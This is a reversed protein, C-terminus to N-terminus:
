KVQNIIKELLKEETQKFEIINKYILRERLPLFFKQKEFNNKIKELEEKSQELRNEISDKLANDSLLTSCELGVNLNLYFLESKSLLDKVDNKLRDKGKETIFYRKRIPMKGEREKKSQLYGKKNLRELVQYVSAVGIKLWQRMDREELMKDIEYAYSPKENIISLLIMEINSLM